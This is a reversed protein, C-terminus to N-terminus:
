LDKEDELLRATTYFEDFRDSIPLYKRYDGYTIKLIEDTDHPVSYKAGNIEIDKKPEMAKTPFIYALNTFFIVNDTSGYKCKSTLSKFKGDFRSFFVKHKLKMFIKKAIREFPKAKGTAFYDVGYVDWRSQFLKITKERFKEVNNNPVAVLYFIDLHIHDIDYGKKCIRAQFFPYKKTTFNSEFYYDSPLQEKLVKILKSVQNIPVSVDFDYDWPINGGDRVLGLLSGCTVFYTIDNKRCLSDFVGVIENVITQCKEFSIYLEDIYNHAEQLFENKKM